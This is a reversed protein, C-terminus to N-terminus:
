KYVNKQQNGSIIDGNGYHTQTIVVKSEEGKFMEEELSPNKEINTELDQILNLIGFRIQNKTVNMEEHTLTGIRIQSMLDNYRASQMIIETMKPSKDLVKKLETIARDLQNKSVLEMIQNSFNQIKM